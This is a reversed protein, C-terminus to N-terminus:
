SKAVRPFVRRVNGLAKAAALVSDNANVVVASRCKAWIPLDARSNGAYEFENGFDRQLRYLKNLGKVNNRGDSGIVEDFIGLHRQVDRAITIDSATALVLRRGREKEEKLWDVFSFYYPLKSADLQVHAAIKSKIAARGRLLWFPLALAMVPKERVLQRTIEVLADTLILTGDLDVCLPINM